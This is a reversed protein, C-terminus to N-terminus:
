VKDNEVINIEIRCLLVSLCMNGYWYFPIIVGITLGALMIMNGYDFTKGPNNTFSLGYDRIFLVLLLFSVFLAACFVIQVLVNLTFVRKKEEQEYLRDFITCITIYGILIQSIALTLYIIILYYFYPLNSISILAQLAYSGFFMIIFTTLAFSAIAVNVNNQVVEWKSDDCNMPIYTLCYHAIKEHQMLALGIPLAVILLCLILDEHFRFAIALYPIVLIGFFAKAADAVEQPDTSKGSYGYTNCLMHHFKSAKIIEKFGAM